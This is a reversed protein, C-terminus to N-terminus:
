YDGVRHLTNWEHDLHLPYFLDPHSMKIIDDSSINLLSRERSLSISLPLSLKLETVQSLATCSRPTVVKTKTALQSRSCLRAWPPQSLFVARSRRALSGRPTTTPIRLMSLLVSWIGSSQFTRTGFRPLLIPLVSFLLIHLGPLGLEDLLM